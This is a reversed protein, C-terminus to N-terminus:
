ARRVQRGRLLPKPPSFGNLEAIFYKVQRLFGFANVEVACQPCAFRPVAQLSRVSKAFSHTCHPCQVALMDNIIM